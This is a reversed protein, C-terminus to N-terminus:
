LEDRLLRNYENRIIRYCECSADELGARDCVTIRGRHSRILGAQQLAGTAVTVTARRVGLMQSLFEHTLPFQDVGVRDHTILLWRACREIMPHLRNCAASQAVQTLLGQTYRQLIQHLAGGGNVESRFVEARMRLANGPIQTIAQGPMSGTGLFVPLGIMGENGVTAVEIASGDDMVTLLSIMGTLLFHVHLVPENPAYVVYKFDLHVRELHPLLRQRDGDPLIALLRNEGPPAFLDASSM